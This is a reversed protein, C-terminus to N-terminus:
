QHFLFVSIIKAGMENLTSACWVNAMIPSVPEPFDVKALNNTPASAALLPVM